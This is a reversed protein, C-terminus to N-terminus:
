HGPARRQKKEADLQADLAAAMARPSKACADPPAPVCANSEIWRLDAAIHELQRELSKPAVERSIMEASVHQLEENVRILRKCVRKPFACRDMADQYPAFRHSLGNIEAELACFAEPAFYVPRARMQGSVCPREGSCCAALAGLLCLFGVGRTTTSPM